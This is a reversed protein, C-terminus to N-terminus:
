SKGGKERLAKLRAIERSAQVRTMDRDAPEPFQDLEERLRTIALRQERTAKGFPWAFGSV